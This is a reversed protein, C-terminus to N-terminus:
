HEHSARPGIATVTRRNYQDMIIDMWKTAIRNEAALFRLFFM